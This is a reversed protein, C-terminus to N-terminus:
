ALRAALIDSVDEWGDPDSSDSSSSSDDEPLPERSGSVSKDPNYEEKPQGLRAKVLPWYPGDVLEALLYDYHAGYNGKYIELMLENFHSWQQQNYAAHQQMTSPSEKTELEQQRPYCM